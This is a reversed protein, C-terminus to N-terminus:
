ERERTIEDPEAGQSGEPLITGALTEESPPHALEHLRRDYQGRLEDLATGEWLEVGQFYAARSIMHAAVPSTIFGFVIIALAKALASWSELEVVVALLLLALGLTSAKTVTSMRMYLDPMRTVGVAALLVFLSGSVALAPILVETM